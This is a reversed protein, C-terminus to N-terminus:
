EIYPNTNCTTICKKTRARHSCAACLERDRHIRLYSAVGPLNQALGKLVDTSSVWQAEFNTRVAMGAAMLSRRVVAMLPEGPHPGRHSAERGVGDLTCVAATVNRRARFTQRPDGHMISFAQDRSKHGHRSLMVQHHTIGPKTSQTTSTIQSVDGGRERDCSSQRSGCPCLVRTSLPRTLQHPQSCRFGM